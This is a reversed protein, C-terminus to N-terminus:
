ERHADADGEEPASQNQDNTQVQRIGWAGLSKGLVIRAIREGQQIQQEETWPGSRSLPPGAMRIRGAEDLTIGVMGDLVIRIPIGTNRLDMSLLRDATISAVDLMRAGQVTVEQSAGMQASIELVGSALDALQLKSAGQKREGELKTVTVGGANTHVMEEGLKTRARYTALQVATAQAQAQEARTAAADFGAGMAAVVQDAIDPHDKYLKYFVENLQKFSETGARGIMERQTAFFNIDANKSHDGGRGGEPKEGPKLAAIGKEAGKKIGDEVASGIAELAMEGGKEAAKEAAKGAVQAAGKFLAKGIKKAVAVIEEAVMAGAINAVAATGMVLAIEALEWWLSEPAPPPKFTRNEEEIVHVGEKQQEIMARFSETVGSGIREVEMSTQTKEKSNINEKPNVAKPHAPQRDAPVDELTRARATVHVYHDEKHGDMWTMTYRLMTAVPGPSKPVYKITLKRGPEGAPMSVDQWDVAFDPWFVWATAVAGYHKGANVPSDFVFEHESGVIQEGFDLPWLQDVRGEPAKTSVAPKDLQLDTSTAVVQDSGGM